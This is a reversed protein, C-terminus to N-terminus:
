LKGERSFGTKGGSGQSQLLYSSFINLYLNACGTKINLKNENEYRTWEAPPTEWHSSFGCGAKTGAKLLVNLVVFVIHVEIRPQFTCCICCLTDLHVLFHTKQTTSRWISEAILSASIFLTELIVPYLHRLLSSLQLSLVSQPLSSWTNIGWTTFSRKIVSQFHVCNQASQM